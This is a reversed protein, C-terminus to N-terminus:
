SSYREIVYYGVVIYIRWTYIWPGVASDYLMTHRCPTTRVHDRPHQVHREDVDYTIHYSGTRAAVLRQTHYYDHLARWWALLRCTRTRALLATCFPPKSSLLCCSSESEKTARTKARVELSKSFDCNNFFLKLRTFHVKQSKTNKRRSKIPHLKTIWFMNRSKIQPPHPTFPRM